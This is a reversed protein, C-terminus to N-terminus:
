YYWGRQKELEDAPERFQIDYQDPIILSQALADEMDVWTGSSKLYVDYCAVPESSCDGDLFYVIIEAYAANNFRNSQGEAKTAKNRVLM